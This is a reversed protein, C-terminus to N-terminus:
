TWPDVCKTPDICDNLSFSLWWMHKMYTKCRLKSELVQFLVIQTEFNNFLRSLAHDSQISFFTVPTPLAWSPAVTTIIYKRVQYVSDLNFFVPSGNGDTCIFVCFNNKNKNLWINELFYLIPSNDLILPGDVLIHLHFCTQYCPWCVQVVLICLIM